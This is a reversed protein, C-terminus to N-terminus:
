SRRRSSSAVELAELLDADPRYHRASAPLGRSGGARCLALSLRATNCHEFRPRLQLFQPFSQGTSPSGKVCARDLQTVVHQGHVPPPSLVLLTCCSYARSPAESARPGSSRSPQGRGTTTGVLALLEMMINQDQHFPAYARSKSGVPVRKALQWQGPCSLTSWSSGAGSVGGRGLRWRVPLNREAPTLM